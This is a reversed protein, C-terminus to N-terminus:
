RSALRVPAPAEDAAVAAVMAMLATDFRVGFGFCESGGGCLRGVHVGIVAGGRGVYLGGSSGPASAASSIFLRAPDSIRMGTVADRVPGLPFASAEGASQAMEEGGGPYSLLRVTGAGRGRAAVPLPAVPMARELKLIAVDQSSDNRNDPDSWSSRVYRVRAAARVTGDAGYLRFTCGRPDIAAGNAPFLIHAATVVTDAAGVVWGSGDEVRALGGPAACVLRGVADPGAVGGEAYAPAAMALLVFLGAAFGRSVSRM